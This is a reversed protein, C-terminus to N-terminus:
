ERMQGEKLQTIKNNSFQLLEKHTRSTSRKSSVYKVCIEEQETPQRKVRNITGKSACFSESKIYNLKDIKM